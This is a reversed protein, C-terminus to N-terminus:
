TGLRNLHDPLCYKLAEEASENICCELVNEIRRDYISVVAVFHNKVPKLEMIQCQM